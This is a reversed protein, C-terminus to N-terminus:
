RAIVMERDLRGCAKLGIGVADWINHQLSKCCLDVRAKEEPSLRGQIRAIMADPDVQGKWERPLYRRVEVCSVLGCIYGDIAALTLLDRPDGISKSGAYVQPFEVVILDVHGWRNAENAVANGMEAIAMMDDGIKVPNRVYMARDLVSPGECFFAVGCGRLGPDISMITTMKPVTRIQGIGM